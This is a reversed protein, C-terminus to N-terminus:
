SAPAGYTLWITQSAHRYVMATQDGARSYVTGRWTQGRLQFAGSLTEHTTMYSNLTRATACSVGATATLSTFLPQSPACRHVGTSGGAAPGGPVTATAPSGPVTATAPGAPVTATAPGGPVTATAPAATAALGAAVLVGAAVTAAAANRLSRAHRAIPVM